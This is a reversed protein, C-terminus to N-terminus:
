NSSFKLRTSNLASQMTSWGNGIWGSLKLSLRKLVIKYCWRMFKVYMALSAANFDVVPLLSLDYSSIKQVIHQTLTYWFCACYCYLWNSTRCIRNHSSCHVSYIYVCKSINGIICLCAMICGNYFMWRYM